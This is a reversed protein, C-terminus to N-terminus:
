PLPVGVEVAEPSDLRSTRTQPQGEPGVLRVM